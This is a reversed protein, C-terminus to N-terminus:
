WVLMEGFYNPYRAYHWLGEDIFRGKNEPNAKFLYKQMDATSELIFGTLFLGVGVIDTWVISRPGGNTSTNLLLLPLSTVFVWVAQM